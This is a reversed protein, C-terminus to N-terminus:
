ASLRRNWRRVAGEVNRWVDPGVGEVYYCDVEPCACHCLLGGCEVRAGDRFPAIRLDLSGCFPCPLLWHIAGLESVMIGKSSM